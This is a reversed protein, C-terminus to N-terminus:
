SKSKKILRDLEERAASENMSSRLASARSVLIVKDDPYNELIEDTETLVQEARGLDLLCNLFLQAAKLDKKDQRYAVEAFPLAERMRGQNILMGALNRNIGFKVDPERLAQRMLDEALKENGKKYEIVSQLNLRQWKKLGRLSDLMEQPKVFEGNNLLGDFEKLFDPLNIQVSGTKTKGSSKSVKSNEPKRNASKRAKKKAKNRIKEPM